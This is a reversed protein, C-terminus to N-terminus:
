IESVGGEGADTSVSINHVLRCICNAPKKGSKQRFLIKKGQYHRRRLHCMNDNKKYNVLLEKIKLYTMPNPM